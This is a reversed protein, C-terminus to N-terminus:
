VKYTYFFAKNKFNFGINFFKGFPPCRWNASLKKKCWRHGSIPSFVTTLLNNFTTCRQAKKHYFRTTKCSMAHQMDTKHVYAGMSSINTLEWRYRKRIGDWFQQKNLSFGRESIPYSTLWDSVGKVQSIKNLRMQSDPM